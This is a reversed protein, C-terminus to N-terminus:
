ARRRARTTGPCCALARRLPPTRETSSRRDAEPRVAAAREELSEEAELRQEVGRDPQQERCGRHEHEDARTCSIACAIEVFAPATFVATVTSSRTRSVSMM